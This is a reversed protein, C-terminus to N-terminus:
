DLIARDLAAREPKLDEGTRMSFPRLPHSGRLRTPASLAACGSNIRGRCIAPTGRIYAFFAKHEAKRQEEGPRDAGADLNQRQRRNHSGGLHALYAPAM